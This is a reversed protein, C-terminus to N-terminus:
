RGLRRRSSGRPAEVFLKFFMASRKRCLWGDGNLDLLAIGEDMIVFYFKCDSSWACSAYFHGHDLKIPVLDDASVSDMTLTGDDNFVIFPRALELVIYHEAM